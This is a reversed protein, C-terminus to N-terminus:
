GSWFRTDRMRGSSSGLVLLAASGFAVVDAFDSGFAVAGTFGSGCGAEAFATFPLPGTAGQRLDAAPETPSSISSLICYQHRRGSPPSSAGRRQWGQWVSGFWVLGVSSVSRVLGVSGLSRM